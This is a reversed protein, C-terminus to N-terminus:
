TLQECRSRFNHGGPAGPPCDVTEAQGFMIYRPLPEQLVICATRKKSLPVTAGFWVVTPGKHLTSPGGKAVSQPVEIDSSGHSITGWELIPQYEVPLM